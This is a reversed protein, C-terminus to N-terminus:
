VYVPVAHARAKAFLERLPPLGLGEAAELLDPRLFETSDGALVVGVDHGREISGNVALHFPISARTPDSSGSSAIYLVRM